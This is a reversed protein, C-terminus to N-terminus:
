IERRFILIQVLMHKIGKSSIKSCLQVQVVCHHRHEPCERARARSVTTNKCDTRFKGKNRKEAFTSFVGAKQKTNNRLSQFLLSKFNFILWKLVIYKQHFDKCILQAKKKYRLQWITMLDFYERDICERLRVDSWTLGSIELIWPKLRM